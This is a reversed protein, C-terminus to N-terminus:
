LIGIEKKVEAIWDVSSWDHRKDQCDFVPSMECDFHNLFFEAKMRMGESEILLTLLRQIDPRNHTAQERVFERDEPTM